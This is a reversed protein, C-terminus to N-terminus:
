RISRGRSTGSSSRGSRRRGLRPPEAGFQVAAAPAGDLLDLGGACGAVFYLSGSMLAVMDLAASDLWAYFPDRLIDKAYREILPGRWTTRKEGAALGHAGLLLQGAPQASRADRRRVPPAPPPGGGLAAALGAGRLGGPHSAANWGCRARSQSADAPPPLRPQHRLMGFVFLGAVFLM